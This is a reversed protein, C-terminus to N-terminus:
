SPALADLARQAADRGLGSLDAVPHAIHLRDALATFRDRCAAPPGAVLAAPLDEAAVDSFWPNLRRFEAHVRPDGPDEGPRTFVWMSRRIEAPDRGQAQCLADLRRVAGVVASPLPPLNMDWVQAHRAVLELLRPGRGGVEVALNQPCPRVRARDLTVFRGQVSVEEGRWLARVAGLTEDLWAIRAAPPPLPLGFRADQPQGGISVLFRLRGPAIRDLTAVAQALKAANWHHVLRISGVQIRRTRNLLATTLTWGDLVEADGRSPLFSVDGDVFVAPFGQAEARQVLALLDEFPLVHWAFAVGLEM